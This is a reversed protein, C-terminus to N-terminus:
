EEDLDQQMESFSSESRLEDIPDGQCNKKCFMHLTGNIFLLMIMVPKLMLFKLYLSEKSEDDFSIYQYYRINVSLALVSLFCSVVQYILLAKPLKKM